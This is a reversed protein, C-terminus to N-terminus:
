HRRNRKTSQQPKSPVTKNKKKREEVPPARAAARTAEALERRREAEAAIRKEEEARTLLRGSTWSDPCNERGLLEIIEEIYYAKVLGKGHHPINLEYTKDPHVWREHATGKGKGEAKPVWGAKCLIPKVKTWPQPVTM